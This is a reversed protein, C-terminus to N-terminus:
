VRVVEGSGLTIEVGGREELEGAFDAVADVVEYEALGLCSNIATKAVRVVAPVGSSVDTKQAYTM